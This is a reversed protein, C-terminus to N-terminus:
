APWGEGDIMQWDASVEQRDQRTAIYGERMQAELEAQELKAVREALLDNVVTNRRPPLGLMRRADNITIKGDNVMMILDSLQEVPDDILDEIRDNNNQFENRPM